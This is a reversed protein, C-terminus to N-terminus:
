YLRTGQSPRVRSNFRHLNQKLTKCPEEQIVQM